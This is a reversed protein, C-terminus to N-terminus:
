IEEFQSLEISNCETCTKKTKMQVNGCDYCCNFKEPTICAREYRKLKVRDRIRIKEENNRCVTCNGRYFRKEGLVFNPFLENAQDVTKAITGCNRSCIHPLSLSCNTKDSYQELNEIACNVRNGDLHKIKLERDFNGFMKLVRSRVNLGTAVGDVRLTFRVYGDIVTPKLIKGRHNYSRGVNKIKILRDMSRVRGKSSLQYLGKMDPIDKWREKM